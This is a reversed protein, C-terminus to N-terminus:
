EGDAERRAALRKAKARVRREREEVKFCPFCLSRRPVILSLDFIGGCRSCIKKGAPVEPATCFPPDLHITEALKAEATGLASLFAPYLRFATVSAGLFFVEAFLQELIVKQNRPELRDFNRVAKVIMLALKASTVAPKRETLFETSSQLREIEDRVLRRECKLESISIAGDSCMQILRKEKKELKRILENPRPIPFERVVEACQRASQEILGALVKEDSLLECCFAILLADLKKQGVWKNNCRLDAGNKSRHQSRCCYYGVAKGTEADRKSGTVTYFPLGCTGCRGYTSCLWVRHEKPLRAVHNFRLEDLIKGVRAFQEPSVPPNDCFKIRLVEEPPRDIKRRSRQRGDVGVRVDSPDRMKNYVRYGIYAENRLTGCLATRKMSVARGVAALCHEGEDLLQFARQVTIIEEPDFYFKKRDRDWRLAKPLTQAGSSLKGEARLRERSESIKKLLMKREHGAWLTHMGGVLWDHPNSFDIQLGDAVILCGNSAFIDLCSMAQWSDVRMLRSVSECIVAKIQGSEILGLLKNFEPTNGVSAGSVDTVEFSAILKYGRSEIIADTLAYQRQVGGHRSQDAQEQTSVRIWRAVCISPASEDRANHGAEM